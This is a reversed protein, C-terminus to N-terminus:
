RHRASQSVDHNFSALAALLQTARVFRRETRPMQPRRQIYVPIGLEHAAALKAVVSSGGSDKTILADIRLRQMTEREGAQTFPGRAVIVTAGNPGPADIATRIVWHQHEPRAGSHQLVSHGITFFPRCAHTLRPLLDYLEAFSSHPGKIQESWGPRHLQWCPVACREAASIAHASIRTAYPHTVDLLLDIGRHRIADALGDIGSRGAGSFGGSIIDCPLNDPRATLGAVSYTVTHGRDHLEAALARAEGTGGLLLLKM